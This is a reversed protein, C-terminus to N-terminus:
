SPSTYRERIASLIRERSESPPLDRLEEVMSVEDALVDDKIAEVRELSLDVALVEGGAETLRRAVHEGFQGLGVVVYTRM